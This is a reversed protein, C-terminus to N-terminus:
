TTVAEGAMFAILEAHESFDGLRQKVRAAETYSLNSSTRGDNPGTLERGIIKETIQLREDRDQVGLRTFLQHLTGLQAKTVHGPQEEPLLGPPDQWLNQEDPVPGQTREAPRERERTITRVLGAHEKDAHATKARPLPKPKAKSAEQADDDDEAPAVGTVACLCYRRAYTIVGGIDQQKFREPDPLAYEGSLEEGSEHLLSYALVFKGQGNITPRATFALGVESMLPLIAASVGHLDAYTYTYSFKAGQKNTGEVKGTEGKPIHPLRGQLKALAKNLEPTPV